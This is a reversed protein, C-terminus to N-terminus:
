RYHRRLFRRVVFPFLVLCLLLAGVGEVEPVVPKKKEQGPATYPQWPDVQAYFRM